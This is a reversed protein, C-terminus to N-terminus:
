CIVDINDYPIGSIKHLKVLEKALMKSEGTALRNYRDLNIGLIDSFEARSLNMQVRISEINLKIEGM